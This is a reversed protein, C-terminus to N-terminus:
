KADAPRPDQDARGSEAARHRWRSPTVADQSAAFGLGPLLGLVMDYLEEAAPRASEDLGMVEDPQTAILHDRLAMQAGYATDVELWTELEFPVVGPLRRTRPDVWPAFSLKTQLIQEM